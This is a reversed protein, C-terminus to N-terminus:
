SFFTTNIDKICALWKATQATEVTQQIVLKGDTVLYKGTATVLDM